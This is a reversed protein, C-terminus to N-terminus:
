TNKLSDFLPQKEKKLIFAVHENEQKRIKDQKDKLVKKLVLTKSIIPKIKRKKEVPLLTEVYLLTGSRVKLCFFVRATNYYTFKFRQWIYWMPPANESNIAM